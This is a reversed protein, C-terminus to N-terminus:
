LVTITLHRATSYRHIVGVHELHEEEAVALALGESGCDVAAVHVHLSEEGDIHLPLRGAM